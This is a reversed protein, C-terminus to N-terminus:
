KTNKGGKDMTIKIQKLQDASLVSLAVKAKESSYNYCEMLLEIAEEKERKYWKQYPRKYGRITNILYQYQLKKDIEHHMNMENARMICDLHFSLAKNVIFPVYTKEDDETQIVNKKTQLISPIIEKFLDPM